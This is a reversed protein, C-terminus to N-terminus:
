LISMERELAAMVPAIATEYRDQLVSASIKGHQQVPLPLNMIVADFDIMGQKYVLDLLHWDLVNWPLISREAYIAALVFEKRVEVLAVKIHARYRYKITDVKCGIDLAIRAFNDEGQEVQLLFINWDLSDWIPRDTTVRKQLRQMLQGAYIHAGGEQATNAKDALVAITERCAIDDLRMASKCEQSKKTRISNLCTNRAIRLIWGIFPGQSRYEPLRQWVLLFTEQAADEGAEWDHLMQICFSCIRLHYRIKLHNFSVGDGRQALAIIHEETHAVTFPM